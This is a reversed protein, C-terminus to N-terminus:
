KRCKQLLYSNALMQMDALMRPKLAPNYLGASPHFMPVISVEETSKTLRKKNKFEKGALFSIPRLENELGYLCFISILAIGGLPVIFTHPCLCTATIIETVLLDQCNAMEEFEPKRNLPPRCKLVNTVYYDEGTLGSAKILNEFLKGEQGSFPKGTKEDEAGPAEGIFLINAPLKGKGRVYKQCCMSCKKCSSSGGFTVAYALNLLEEPGRSGSVIEKAKEIEKDTIVLSM